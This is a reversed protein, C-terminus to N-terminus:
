LPVAFCNKSDASRARSSIALIGAPVFLGNQIRTADTGEIACLQVTTRLTAASLAPPFEGERSESRPAAHTLAKSPEGQSM